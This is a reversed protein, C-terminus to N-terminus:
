MRRRTLLCISELMKVSLWPLPTQDQEKKKIKKKEEEEAEGKKDKKRKKSKDEEQKKKQASVFMDRVPAPTADPKSGKPLGQHSFAFLITWPIFQSHIPGVLQSRNFLFVYSDFAQM